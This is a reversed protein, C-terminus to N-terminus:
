FSRHFTNSYHQRGDFDLETIQLKEEDNSHKLQYHQGYHNEAPNDVPVKQDSIRYKQSDQSEVLKFGSAIPKTLDGLPRTSSKEISSLM